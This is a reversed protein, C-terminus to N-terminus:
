GFSGGGSGGGGSRGGGSRGGGSGGWSSGGGGSSGWSSGGGRSGGWSSGGGGSGGWSSGGGGSDPGDDFPGHQDRPGPPPTTIIPPFNWWHRRRRRSMPPMGFPGPSYIPPTPPYGRASRARASARIIVFVILLFFLVFLCFMVGGIGVILAGGPSPVGAPTRLPADPALVERPFASQIQVQQGQIPETLEWRVSNSSVTQRLPAGDANLELNAPDIATPFRLEVSGHRIEPADATGWFFQWDFVARDDQALLVNNLTYEIVIAHYRAHPDRFNVRINAEVGDDDAAYTGPSNEGRQYLQGDEMVQVNTVRGDAGIEFTRIMYNLPGREVVIRQQEQVHLSGDPQIDVINDYAQWYLSPPSQGFALTPMLLLAVIMIGLFRM